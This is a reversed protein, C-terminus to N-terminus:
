LNGNLTHCLERRDKQKGGLSLLVQRKRLQL